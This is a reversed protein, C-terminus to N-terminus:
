FRVQALLMKKNFELALENTQKVKRPDSMKLEWGFTKLKSKMAAGFDDISAPSSVTGNIAHFPKFGEVTRQAECRFLLGKLSLKTAKELAAESLSLSFPRTL